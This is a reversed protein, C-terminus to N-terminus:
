KNRLIISKPVLKYGANSGIAYRFLQQELTGGKRELASYSNGKLKLVGSVIQLLKRRRDFGNRHPM